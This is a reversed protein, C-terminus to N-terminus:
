DQSLVVASYPGIGFGASAPMGHLPPGRADADHCPHGSLGYERADSNLRVRWRGPAPLGVEYRAYARDALNLLVVVDDRPGGADRRHYAIVKDGENVHYVAVERGRLGRTTDFWNRRLRVLDRFFRLVGAQSEVRGWDMRGGGRFPQTELVEQGQFLMPIGPSTLVLVAGLMARRRAHWGEPDAPHVAAPVRSREADDHSETYIVRRLPDGDYGHEVARRLAAMSRAEDRPEALVARVPFVFEADWQAGFGAGGRELERVLAPDGRLDEAVQLKWPARERSERNAQRLLAWGDELDSGPDDVYGHANRVHSTSDWRLGDLRFEDLWWRVNDLILRRVQPRGYDPRDGWPTGARWDNYFYIGGHGDRSWGDFRWLPNDHVGMHNYVVDLLVAIGREHAARVLSRLGDAGGYAARVAFLARPDYGWSDEGACEVVPMLEICNVGLGALHDLRAQVEAFGGGGFAGVHLEYVVLEHWGPMQFPHPGWDFAGPDHVVATGHVPDLEAAYPDTRRLTEGGAHVDFRYHDGPRAGPVDASWCGDADRALPVHAAGRRHFTGSLTVGDAFPAWVRFAVGGDYPVAGMGPHRSAM